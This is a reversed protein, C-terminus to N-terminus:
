KYFEISHGACVYSWSGILILIFHTFCYWRSIDIRSLLLVFSLHHAVISSLTAGTSFGYFTVDTRAKPLDEEEEEEEEEEKKQKANTKARKKKRTDGESPAESSELRRKM